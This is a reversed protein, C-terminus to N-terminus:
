ILTVRPWAALCHELPPHWKQLYWTTAPSPSHPPDTRQVRGWLPQSTIGGWSSREVGGVVSGAFVPAPEDGPLM